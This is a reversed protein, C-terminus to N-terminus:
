IKDSLSYIPAIMALAFVGVAGGIVLMLLPEIITSLDKTGEEVDAEYFEAVQVLMDSVKGTEEGVSIMDGFFIPYLKAREIFSASLPEGKKVRVEAEELVEGFVNDGVVERTISIASLMPVGSTLLSALTRAARACMTERVLTGIVPIRLAVFLVARAGIRTKLFLWGGFVIAILFLIVIWVHAVMFNSSDIILKTMFPLDVGLSTFTSSLTPVVFIMMLIGIIVIASLIVGPYIMAGRVKRSLAYARETQRAILTLAEALKGSEEGAKTMAIFLTSFVKPYKSLADHFSSGQKVFSSLASVVEKLYPNTSQREIVSLARALSLGASLMASLNKTFTIKEEIKISKFLQIKNLDSFTFSSEEETLSIAHLGEAQLAKLASVRDEAEVVREKEGEGEKITAKFKM